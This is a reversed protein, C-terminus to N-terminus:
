PAVKAFRLVFETGRGPESHVKIRGGLRASVLNYVTHLGLGISGAARRTTFFPEFVQKQDDPAIGRGDDSFVMVVSGDRDVQVDIRLQGVEEDAYAHLLANQALTTVIQGISGPYSDLVLDPPCRFQLSIPRPKWTLPLNQCLDALTDGLLFRRREDSSRDASVQKFSRVLQAARGLHENVLRDAARSQEIFEGLDSARLQRRELREGLDRLGDGLHSAATLAIGLPTNIEHAVGAVLQGLSAMKESSVLHQQTSQLRELAAEAREKSESLQATRLRVTAELEREHARLRATHRRVALVISAALGLLVLAVFWGTQWFAPLVEVPLVLAEANWQGTRNSGEIRLLYSGPWLNSYTAVRRSSDSEVWDPDFGELQYRYRNRQPASLDLAAFEVSFGRQEPQLQLGAKWREPALTRGGARLESVVLPPRYDWARFRPPDVLLLGNSGGFLMLGGRTQTYARFWATGIDVGDARTLEHVQRSPPDMVLRQTWIRGQDDQLLNAGVPEATLGLEASFSRLAVRPTCDHAACNGDVQISQLRLLGESGDIWLVGDRDVLMGVVTLAALRQDEEAVGSVTFLRDVAAPKFFMGSNSGVWVNGQGDEVLANVDISAGQEGPGPVRLLADAGPTWLLLGANSGVWLRGDSGALLRRATNGSLGLGTGFRQRRDTAPDHRHLDALTGVWISGDTTQALSQILPHSLADPDNPDARWGGLLGRQPDFRDVGNDRTGIWLEGSATELVAGISPSSLGAPRSPSHHLVRLGSVAPDHRQLGGGYGGIWVQGARDVLMTRVQDHALTGPVARDPRIARRLRGTGADLVAIGGFGGMWLEDDTPQVMALSYSAIGAGGAGTDDSGIRQLSRRARDVLFAGDQATGVAVRGDRLATLSLLQLGALNPSQAPDAFVREYSGDARRRSMGNWSGILLEGEDTALLTLIREDLAGTQIGLRQEFRDLQCGEGEEAGAALLPCVDTSEARWRNLGTRTGIWVDGQGDEALARVNDHLLGEASAQLHAFRETHPDFVWVGDADTGMWLRGDRTPLLARVFVGRARSSAGGDPQLEFRRFRYGDYRILGSPTGIWLFGQADEALATVNNDPIQEPNGVSEFYGDGLELMAQAPAWGVLCLVITLLARVPAREAVRRRAFRKGAQGRQRQACAGSAISAM